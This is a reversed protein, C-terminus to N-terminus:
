QRDMKKTPFLLLLSIYLYHRQIRYKPPKTKDGMKHRPIDPFSNSNILKNLSPTAGVRAKVEVPIMNQTDRIFFDM